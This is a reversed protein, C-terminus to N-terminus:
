RYRIDFLPEAAGRVATAVLEMGFKGGENVGFLRNRLRRETLYPWKLLSGIKQKLTIADAPDHLKIDDFGCIDLLSILNSGCFGYEHALTVYLSSNAAPSEMNPTRLCLKGGPLLAQYLSDTVWLLSHKPIHEIVHSLHIFEYQASRGVLFEGIDNHIEHLSVASSWKAVHSKNAVGFDAGIINTYGLKLCTAIFWGNGFGIELIPASKEKPLIKKYWNAAPVVVPNREMQEFTPKSTKTPHRLSMRRYVEAVFANPEM